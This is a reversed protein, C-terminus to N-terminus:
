RHIPGINEQLMPSDRLVHLQSDRDALKAIEEDKSALEGEKTAIEEDKHALEREKM